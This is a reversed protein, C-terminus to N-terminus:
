TKSFKSRSRLRDTSGQLAPTPLLPVKMAKSRIRCPIRFYSTTSMKPITYSIRLSRTQITWVSCCYMQMWWTRYLNYTHYVLNIDVRVKGTSARPAQPCPALGVGGRGAGRCRPTRPRRLSRRTRCTIPSLVQADFVWLIHVAVLDM